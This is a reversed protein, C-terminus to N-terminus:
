DTSLRFLSHQTGQDSWASFGLAHLPALNSMVDPDGHSLSRALRDVWHSADFNVYFVSSAAAANPVVSIFTPDQGLSGSGALTGVYGPDLGVAVVGDGRRVALREGPPLLRQVKALPPLIRAPDGTIRLGVPLSSPDTHPGLSGLNASSDVSLTVANGFLAQVDAPISLGTQAEIGHITKNIIANSGGAHRLRRLSTRAWDDSLGAGIAVATSAPLRTVDAPHSSTTGATTGMASEVEITGDHFRLVAAGGKFTRYAKLLQADSGNTMSGLKDALLREAGPAVYATLVGPGGVSSTWKQFNPDDQLSGAAVDAAVTTAHQQNDSLLLYDGVFAVGVHDAGHDCGDLASVGKSAATRDSVQVAVVPIVANSGSPVAAAAIRNGIWPAIDRDYTVGPCEGGKQVQDFFWRKLDGRNGINLSKALGPFRRLTRLAEIKQGASPDLDISVYGVATSPIATAPAAGGGSLFSFLGWGGAALAA